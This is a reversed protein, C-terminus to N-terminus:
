NLEEAIEVIVQGDRCNVVLEVRISDKKRNFAGYGLKELSTIKLQSRWEGRLALVKGSGNFSM